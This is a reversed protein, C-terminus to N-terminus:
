FNFYIFEAPQGLLALSAFLLIAAICAFGPTMRWKLRSPQPPEYLSAGPRFRSMIQTTNPLCWAILLGALLELEDRRRPLFTLSINPKRGLALRIWDPVIINNYGAMGRLVATAATLSDARFYVWAIVVALFTVAQGISREAVTPPLRWRLRLARWVHNLALYIGHLGGWILFTWGAGHWLGGLLM